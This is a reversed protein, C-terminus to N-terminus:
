WEQSLDKWTPNASRILDEKKLRSWKKIQKERTIAERIDSTQDM